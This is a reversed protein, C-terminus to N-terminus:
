AASRLSLMEAGLYLVHNVNVLALHAVLEGIADIAWVQCGARQGIPNFVECVGGYVAYESVTQVSSEARLCRFSKAFRKLGFILEDKIRENLELELLHAAAVIAPAVYQIARSTM